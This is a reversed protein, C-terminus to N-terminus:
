PLLLWLLRLRLFLLCLAVWVMLIVRLLYYLLWFDVELNSACTARLRILCVPLVSLRSVNLFLLVSLGSLLVLGPHLSGM